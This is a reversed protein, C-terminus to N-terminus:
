EQTTHMFNPPCYTGMCVLFEELAARGKDIQKDYLDNTVEDRVVKYMHVGRTEDEDYSTWNARTGAPLFALWSAEKRCFSKHNLNWVQFSDRTVPAKLKYTKRRATPNGM